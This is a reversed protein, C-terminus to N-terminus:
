RRAGPPSKATEQRHHSEEIEEGPGRRSSQPEHEEAPEQDLRCRGFRAHHEDLLGQAVAPDAVQHRRLGVGHRRPYGHGVKEVLDDPRESVAPGAVDLDVRGDKASDGALRKLAADLAQRCAAVLTRAHDLNADM